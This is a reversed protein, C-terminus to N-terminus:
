KWVNTLNGKGVSTTYGLNSKPTPAKDLVLERGQSCYIQVLLNIICLLDWVRRLYKLNSAFLRDLDLSNFKLM